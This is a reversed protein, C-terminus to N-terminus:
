TILEPRQTDAMVIEEHGNRPVPATLGDVPQHEALIAAGPDQVAATKGLLEPNRRTGHVCVFARGKSRSHGAPNSKRM